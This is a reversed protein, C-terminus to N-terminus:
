QPTEQQLLIDLKTNISKAISEASDKSGQIHALEKSLQIITLQLNEQKRYLYIVAVGLILEYIGFGLEKAQKLFEIM